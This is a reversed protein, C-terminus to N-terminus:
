ATMHNWPLRAWTAGSEGDVVGGDDGGDDGDPEDESEVAVSRPEPVPHPNGAPKAAPTADTGEHMTMHHLESVM